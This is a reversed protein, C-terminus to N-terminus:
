ERRRGFDGRPDDLELNRHDVLEIVAGSTEVVVPVDAVTLNGKTLSKMVLRGALNERTSAATRAASITDGDGTEAPLTM